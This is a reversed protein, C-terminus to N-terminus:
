VGCGVGSRSSRRRCLGRSRSEGGRRGDAVDSTSEKRRQARALLQSIEALDDGAEAQDLGLLGQEAGLRGQQSGLKGQELGLKGQEGGIAQMEACAREARDMLVPDRIVGTREDLWFWLLPEDGKAVARVEKWDAGNTTIFNGEEGSYLAYTFRDEYDYSDSKGGEGASCVSALAILLGPVFLALSSRSRM